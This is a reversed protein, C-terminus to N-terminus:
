RAVEESSQKLFRVTAESIAEGWIRGAAGSIKGKRGLHGLVQRLERDSLDALDLLGLKVDRYIDEGDRM